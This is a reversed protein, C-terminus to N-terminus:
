WGARCDECCWQSDAISSTASTIMVDETTINIMATGATLTGSSATITAMGETTDSYYAMASTSGAMITVMTAAAGDVMFSGTATNSSALSVVTDAAAPVANGDEDQLEVTIM